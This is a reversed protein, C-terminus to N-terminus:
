EEVKKITAIVREQLALIYINGQKDTVLTAKRHNTREKSEKDYQERAPALIEERVKAEQETLKSLFWDFVSNKNIWSKTQSDKGSVKFPFVMFGYPQETIWKEEFEERLTKEDQPTM